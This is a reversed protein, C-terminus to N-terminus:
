TCVNRFFTGHTDCEEAKLCERLIEWGLRSVGPLSRWAGPHSRAKYVSSQEM